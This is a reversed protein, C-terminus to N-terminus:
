RIRYQCYKVNRSLGVNSRESPREGRVRREICSLIGFKKAGLDRVDGLRFVM